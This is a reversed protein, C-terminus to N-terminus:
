LHPKILKRYVELVLDLEDEISELNNSVYISGKNSLTITYENGDKSSIFQIVMSSVNGEEATEKYEESLNVYPGFYGATKLHAGKLDSIWAGKIEDIYPIMKDFKMKVAEIKFYGSNNLKIIYDLAIETKVQILTLGSNPDHYTLFDAPEFYYNFDKQFVRGKKNHRYDHHCEFRDLNQYFSRRNLVMSTQAEGEVDLLDGQMPEFYHNYEFRESKGILFVSGM